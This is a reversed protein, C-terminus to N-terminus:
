YILLPLRPYEEIWRQWSFGRELAKKEYLHAAAPEIRESCKASFYYAAANSPNEAIVKRLIEMTRNFKGEHFLGMAIYVLVSNAIRPCNRALSYAAEGRGTFSYSLILATTLADERKQWLRLVEDLALAPHIDRFIKSSLVVTIFYKRDARSAQELFPIASTFLGKNYLVAGLNFATGLFHPDLAYAKQLDQVAKDINGTYYECYGKLLYGDFRGPFTLSLEDFYVLYPGLAVDKDGGLEYFRRLESFDPILANLGKIQTERAIRERNPCIIGWGSIRWKHVVFPLRRSLGFLLGVFIVITVIWRALSMM